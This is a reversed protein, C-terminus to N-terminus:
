IYNIIIKSIDSIFGISILENYIRTKIIENYKIKLENLLKKRNGEKELTYDSLYGIINNDKIYNWGVRYSVSNNNIGVLMGIINGKLLNYYKNYDIQILDQKYGENNIIKSHIYIDM